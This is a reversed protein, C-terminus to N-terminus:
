VGKLKTKNYVIIRTNDIINKLDTYFEKKLERTSNNRVSKIMSISIGFGISIIVSSMFDFAPVLMPVLFCVPISTVIVKIMKRRLM